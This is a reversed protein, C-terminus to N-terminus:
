PRARQTAGAGGRREALRFLFSLFYGLAFPLFATFVLEADTARARSCASAHVIREDGVKLYCNAFAFRGGVKHVDVHAEVWDGMKASGAFDTKVSRNHDDAITDPQTDHSLGARHRVADDPLGAMAVAAGNAHKPQIRLGVM